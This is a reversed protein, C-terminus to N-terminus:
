ENLKYSSACVVKDRGTRKARFLAADAASLIVGGSQGDDPFCSVGISVTVPGLPKGGYFVKLERVGRVIRDARDKTINVDATPLIIAFEEGGYRCVVDERRVNKLFLEAITTLMLDGAEHGFADNFCKFEDIDIMMMGVPTGYRLGRYLERELTEELYRRNFLSTLPDRISQQKLTEALRFNVLALTVRELFNAALCERAKPTPIEVTEESADLPPFGFHLLGLVGGKSTMPLCMTPMSTLGAKVVHPCPPAASTSSRLYPKGSRLAWCDEPSIIEPSTQADKWFGWSTALDLFNKSAKFIYLRGGMGPFLREAYQSTFLYIDKEERCAQFSDYLESLLNMEENRAALQRMTKQVKEESEKRVTIDSIVSLSSVVKGSADWMPMVSASVSRYQGDARIIALEYSARHGLRRERTQAELVPLQDPPTFERLNRGTLDGEAAGFLAHLAPNAYLLKEDLDIIAVGEGLREMMSRFLEESKRLAEEARTREAVQGQLESTREAVRQELTARAGELHEVMINFSRGLQGIEDRSKEPARLSLDGGAIRGATDSVQRLSRTIMSSLLSILASGLIFVALSILLVSRRNSQLGRQMDELSIGLYLKGIEKGRFIIPRASRFIMGNTTPGGLSLERINPLAEEDRGYSLVVAGQANVVVFYVLDKNQRASLSIERVADADNFYLASGLSYSSLESITDATRGALALGSRIQQRPTIIIIALCFLVVLPLFALLLRLSISRPRPLHKFFGPARSM